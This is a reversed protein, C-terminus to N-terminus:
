SEPWHSFDYQPDSPLADMNGSLFSTGCKATRDVEISTRSRLTTAAGTASRDVTGTHAAGAGAGRGGVDCDVHPRDDRRAGQLQAHRRPAKGRRERVHPRPPRARLLGLRPRVRRHLVVHAPEDVPTGVHEGGHVARPVLQPRRPRPREGGGGHLVLARPRRLVRVVARDDARRRRRRAVRRRRREQRRAATRSPSTTRRAAMRRISCHATPAGSRSCTSSAPPPATPQTATPSGTSGAAAHRLLWRRPLHHAPVM